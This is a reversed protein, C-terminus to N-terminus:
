QLLNSALRGGRHDQIEELGYIHVWGFGLVEQLYQVHISASCNVEVLEKMTRQPQVTRGSSCIQQQHGSLHLPKELVGNRLQLQELVVQADGSASAWKQLIAVPAFKTDNAM